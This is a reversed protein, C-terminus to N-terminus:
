GSELPEQVAFFPDLYQRGELFHLDLVHVFLVQIRIEFAEQLAHAMVDYTIQLLVGFELRCERHHFITHINLEYISLFDLWRFELPWPM